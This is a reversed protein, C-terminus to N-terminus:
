WVLHPWKKMFYAKGPNEKKLGILLSYNDQIVESVTVPSIFFQEAIERILLTYARKSERGTYYYRSVLCENRLANLEDSRGKRPKMTVVPAEDYFIGAFLTTAGRVNM